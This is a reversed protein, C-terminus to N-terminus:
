FTMQERAKPTGLTFNETGNETILVTDCQRFGGIGEVYLGPEVSILMNPQYIEPSGESTYPREHGEMGFGHGARHRTHETVGEQAFFDQVACDVEACAVGPKILDLALQQGRTAIDYLEAQEATYDGVLITRENEANYWIVSGLSNIITPGHPIVDDAHMSFKHPNSSDPSISYIMGVDTNFHDAGPENAFIEEIVQGGIRMLEPVSQGVHMQKLMANMASTWYGAIRRTFAIEAPSKILRIDEVLSQISWQYDTLEAVIDAEAFPELGVRKASGIVEHLLEVWGRGPKADMEWYYKIQKVTVAQSLRELEMRPVIFTPEGQAPVALIVKREASYYDVGTLYMINTDTRVLLVDLDAAQIQQQLRSIRQQYEAPTFM